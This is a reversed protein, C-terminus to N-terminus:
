GDPDGEAADFPHRGGHGEEPEVPIEVFFTTGEGLSSEVRLEGGHRKVITRTISLGLGTGKHRTTYFPKFVDELQRSPIGRGTDSVRFIARGNSVSATVRVHGGPDTAQVANMMLNVLAQRLLEEDARLELGEAQLDLSVRARDAAPQVLRAAREVLRDARVPGLSPEAPRAFALLDRIATEIRELQRVMEDIIPSLEENAGVRRRVLDLGNSIGVVPNKIEHAVGSALEGVTALQSARAIERQHLSEERKTAEDLRVAMENFARGLEGIEDQSRPDVRTDFGGRGLRRTAAVLERVPAVIGGTVFWATVLLLVGFGAAVYLSRKRLRDLPGVADELPLEAVYRWPLDGVQRSTGIVEIGDRNRYRAFAGPPMTLLPSPLPRTFDLDGHLHSVFLPRGLSDVIFSEISGALHKPVDLFQEMGEPGMIGGLYALTRGSDGVVPVTLRFHVRGDKAGPGVSEFTPPPMSLSDGRYFAPDAEGHFALLAGDRDELLLADFMPLEAHKRDLYEMVAARDAVDTMRGDKRGRLNAAGAGLFVNGAALAQLSTRARRLQDRVHQTEAQVIAALQRRTLREIIGKSELYGSMNSLLLPLLSLALLWALLRPGLRGKLPNGRFRRETPGDREPDAM